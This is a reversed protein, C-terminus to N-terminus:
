LLGCLYQKEQMQEVLEEALIDNRVFFRYVSDNMNYSRLYETYAEYDYEYSEYILDMSTDLTELVFKSDHEIGYDAALSLPTYMNVITERIHKNMESVLAQGEEGLWIDSSKGDEYQAKYNLAVYRYIEMPVDFGDVTMVVTREEKTNELLKENNTCSALLLFAASLSTLRIINKNM